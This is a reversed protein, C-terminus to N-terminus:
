DFLAIVNNATEALHIITALVPKRHVYPMARTRGQACRRVTIAAKAPASKRRPTVVYPAFSTVCTSNLPAFM